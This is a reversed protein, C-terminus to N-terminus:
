LLHSFCERDRAPKQLVKEGSLGGYSFFDVVELINPHRITKLILYVEQSHMSLKRMVYRSETVSDVVIWLNEKSNLPEIKRYCQLKYEEVYDAMFWLEGKSSDVGADDEVSYGRKAPASGACSVRM